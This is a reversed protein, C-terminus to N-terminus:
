NKMRAIQQRIQSLFVPTIGLYSAIHKQPLRREIDPYTELLALYREKGPLSISNLLRQDQAMSAHENLIRWFREMRPVNKILEERKELDIQLLVSRELAIINRSAPEKRLFSTLDSIWWDEKAFHLTHQNGKEDVHFSRLFGECVYSEYRCVAGQALLYEKPLLKRITFLSNVYKKEDDDLRIRQEFHNLIRKFYAPEAKIKM